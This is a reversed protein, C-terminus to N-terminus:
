GVYQVKGPVHFVLAPETTNNQLMARLFELGDTVKKLEPILEQARQDSLEIGRALAMAKIVDKTIIRNNNKM